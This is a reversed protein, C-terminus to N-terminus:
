EFLGHIWPTTCFPTIPEGVTHIITSTVRRETFYALLLQVTKALSFTWSLSMAPNSTDAMWNQTSAMLSTEKWTSPTTLQFAWKWELIITTKVTCSLPISWVLVMPPQSGIQLCYPGHRQLIAVHFLVQSCHSTPNALWRRDLYRKSSTSM